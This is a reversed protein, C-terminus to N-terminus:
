YTKQNAVADKLKSLQQAIVPRWTCDAKHQEHECKEATKQDEDLASFPGLRQTPSNSGYACRWVSLGENCLNGINVPSEGLSPIRFWTQQPEEPICLILPCEANSPAFVM